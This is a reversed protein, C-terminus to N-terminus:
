TALSTSLPPGCASNTLGQVRMPGEGVWGGWSQRADGDLMVNGLVCVGYAGVNVGWGGEMHGLM